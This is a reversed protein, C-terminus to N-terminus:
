GNLERLKELVQGAHDAVKVKEWVHRVVGEPDILFTSRVTGFSEKGYMKKLQWVGYQEHVSREPDSLLVLDLDHKTTFNAHSKSSDRSVGIVVANHTAFDEKMATFDLAELTCGKTNDKPYFYLVVWRGGFDSLCVDKGEGDPLCFDPAKEGAQIM